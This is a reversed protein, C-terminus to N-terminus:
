ASDLFDQLIAAAIEERRWGELLTVWYDLKGSSLATVIEQPTMSASLRFRGAQVKLDSQTYALLRLSYPSRLLGKDCLVQATKSLSQGKPIVIDVPNTAELSKPGMIYRYYFFSAIVALLVLTLSIFLWSYKKLSLGATSKPKPIM